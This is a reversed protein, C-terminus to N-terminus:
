RWESNIVYTSQKKQIVIKGFCGYRFIDRTRFIKIHLKKETIIQYTLICSIDIDQLKDTFLLLKERYIAWINPLHRSSLYERYKYPNLFCSKSSINGELEHLIGILKSKKLEHKFPNGNVPVCIHILDISRNLTNQICCIEYDKSCYALNRSVKHLLLLM